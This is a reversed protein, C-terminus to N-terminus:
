RQEESELTRGPGSAKVLDHEVRQICVRVSLPEVSSGAEDLDANEPFMSREVAPKDVDQCHLFQKLKL